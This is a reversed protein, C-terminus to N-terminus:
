KRDKSFNDSEFSSARPERDDVQVFILPDREGPTLFQQAENRRRWM